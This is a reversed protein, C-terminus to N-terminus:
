GEQKGTVVVVFGGKGTNKANSEISIVETFAGAKTPKLQLEISKSEGPAVVVALDLYVTGSNGAIKRVVLPLTGANTVTYQQTKVFGPLVTGLEVRRPTVQIKAAPAENVSGSMVLELEEQGPVDTFVSINKRFAGPRGETRYILRLTTKEAPKLSHQGLV